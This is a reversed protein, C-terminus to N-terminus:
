LEAEFAPLVQAISIPTTDQLHTSVPFMCPQGQALSSDPFFSFGVRWANWIWSSSDSQVQYATRHLTNEEGPVKGRHNCKVSVGSQLKAGNKLHFLQFESLHIVNGLSVYDTTCRSDLGVSDPWCFTRLLHTGRLM